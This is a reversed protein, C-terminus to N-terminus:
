TASIFLIVLTSFVFTALIGLDRWRHAWLLDFQAAFDEVRSFPCYSCAFTANPNSLYGKSEKLWYSAYEWCTQGSPPEFISLESQACRVPRDHLETEIMGGVLYTLPNLHYLWKWFPPINPPPITVGCFLSFVILLFPTMLSATYSSPTLAAIAQGLVVSFQETLYIILFQYGAASPNRSFNVPFYLVVFFLSACIISIPIESLVMSTVFVAKSYMRASDEKFFLVRAAEFRPEVQALILAPLVTIQFIVFIRYQIDAYSDGINLYALGTLLAIMIHNFLRTGNYGPQRFSSLFTRRTVIRLQFLFSIQYRSSSPQKVPDQSEINMNSLGTHPHNQKVTSYGKWLKQWEEPTQAREGDSTLTQMMFEAINADSPPPFGAWAFYDAADPAPGRFVTRGHHLLLLDDFQQYLASSPQHITCIIAQGTDALTRLFHLINMASQSDLGSTPEDLFLLDPKAVLEIGISLRKRMEVSLGSPALGILFDAVDQLGLLEMINEIHSSEGDESTHSSSRLMASFTLAERVTQYPDLIDLQECYGIKAQMQSEIPIGSIKIQGQIVGKNKRQALVDLLTSKGAGSPGMLALLKGPRCHGSIDHLIQKSTGKKLAVTYNIREWTISEESKPKAVAHVAGVASERDETKVKRKGKSMRDHGKSTEFSIFENIIFNALLSGLVFIILICVSIWLDGRRFGFTLKLYAMGPIEATGPISGALTCAKNELLTYGPGNPIIQSGQCVMTMVKFENIMMGSFAYRIPNLWYFWSLWPRQDKYPVMYGSSLIMLMIIIGALRLAIDLSRSLSGLTRFFVTMCTQGLVIFLYFTFFAEVSRELGAMFYVVVTFLLNEAAAMPVDVLLQGLPLASARYFQLSRQKYLVSRGLITVPLEVFATFSTFLLSTFVVGGRTFAGSSTQPLQWYTSGLLLAVVLATFNKFAVNFRQQAKLLWHRKALATVQIWFSAKQTFRPKWVSTPGNRTFRELQQRETSLNIPQLAANLREQLSINHQSALFSHRLRATHESESVHRHRPDICATLFDAKSQGPVRQFGQVEFFSTADQASGFYLQHGAEMLLVKDFCDYLIDSAQYLSVFASSEYTRTTIRLARIFRAASGADLGLTPNDLCIVMARAILSEALSVRRREGGSLGRVNADGVLTDQAHGLKFIDLLSSIIEKKMNNSSHPNILDMAFRLTQQVTLSPIHLDGAACFSTEGPFAKAFSSGAFGSYHRAGTIQLPALKENAITRLFTTCGSGPRGLVLVM